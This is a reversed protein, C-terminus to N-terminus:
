AMTMLLFQLGFSLFIYNSFVFDAVNQNTEAFIKDDAQM